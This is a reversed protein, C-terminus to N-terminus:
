PYLEAKGFGIKELGEMQTAADGAVVYYMRNPDIYKRALAQHQELTMEAVIREQDRVYDFPLQYMSIDQLMRLKAGLTEFERAKSKNLSNKTFTLDEDSIGERYQEMLNKFIEVSELTASSRVSSSATFTGTVYSGSFGTRAGYTFGKEERLVLNVDSNFSGGLKHNMVTVPYFDPDTRALGPGGITIVSQKAGPV